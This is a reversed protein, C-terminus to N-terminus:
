MWGCYQPSFPKSVHVPRIRNNKNIMNQKNETNQVIQFHEIPEFHLIESLSLFPHSVECSSIQNGCTMKIEDMHVERERERETNTRNRFYRNHLHSVTSSTHSFILCIEDTCALM